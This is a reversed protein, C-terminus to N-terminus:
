LRDIVTQVADSEVFFVVHDGVEFVTEGRPIVFRGNRVIGGFILPKDFSELVAEISTDALDSEPTVVLEIVEALDSEILSVKESHWDQTYRILEEAVVDRPSLAVSVGAREFMPIFKPHNVVAMTRDIGLDNALMCELLNESESSLAAIFVDAEDIHEDRLFDVDTGDSQLVRTSPLEEALYRARQYEPEFLRVSRGREGLLRAINYGIETGGIVVIDDAPTDTPCRVQDAFAQISEPSGIAVLRVGPEIVTQGAPLVVSGDDIIAAFTVSEYRDAAEITQGAIPASDAIDFEAMVIRGNAYRKLNHAAPLGVLRVIEEAALLDSCVLQDIGFSGNGRQWTDLYRKARIRAVTFIDDIAKATSCAVINVEDSQTSALFLDAGEVGAEELQELSTGDGELVLADLQSELARCRDRDQEVITIQHNQQLSSAISTGVIGAGM